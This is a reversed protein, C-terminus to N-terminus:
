PRCIWLVYSHSSRLAVVIAPGMEEDERLEYYIPRGLLRGHVSLWLKSYKGMHASVHSSFQM